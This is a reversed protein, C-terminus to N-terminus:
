KRLRRLTKEDFKFRLRIFPGKGEYDDGALDADFSDFSYGLSLWMQDVVRYGIEVSGGHLRTNIKHSTLMRYEAGLDFRDTLDYLIRAAVLDTYSDFSDEKVLKGAYKGMLQVRPNFQYNGEVSLIFSDANYSPQSRARKENKYEIKGLANFRDNDMPRFAMGAMLRSTHDEGAVGNKELFYRERLLLSYDPHLKHSMAVEALYTDNGNESIEHRHEARGTVKLDDQPIYEMGAAVAYADPENANKKGSVTSLYEAAFNATMGDTIQIRNKLGTAQQTMDRDFGNSLRYEHYGTTNRAIPSEVGLLTRAQTGEQYRAYEERIYLRRDKSFQYNLGGQSISLEGGGLEQKHSLSLSLNPLLAREVGLKLFTAKDPNEYANLFPVGSLLGGPTLPVKAPAATLNDSTERSLEANVSTKTFKKSAGISAVRSSSDNINDKEDLYKAKFNLDPRFEYVADMGWKRTGRIAGMASLNSYYDSLEQYYATLTLDELPKSKLDFSWGDGTEPVFASGNDFLGRTAAYEARVITELPLRLTIDGGFLRYDSIGNEEVIGTTGVELRDNVKFTARGGYIYFRNGDQFSEYTTVIYIPNGDSDHSSVPATFLITGMDYDIDYDSGRSRIERALVRDPHTRDRTEIVVRESGEIIRNNNLYYFGSIGRAPITDVFQSQDTYSGFTRLRLRDKNVEFRLGNFSRNYAGLKTDTLDTRYDGYLLSSKGKELKVYLKERSMAEYGTKSEDGYAPYKEESDLRTDSERFLEDTREKNSDYAATLSIDKFIKGKLFVAGRGDLYTEDDYFARDKLFSINGSSTGHGLVIEGLGVVLMERLSPVFYISASEMLSDAEAHIKVEGTEMPAIITLRAVGKECLVQHGDMSPDADKEMIDGATIAVTITNVYPIVRGKKDALFIEVNIRSEGDAAAEKRDPIIAIREPSGPTEVTIQKHGRAIGFSDKIEARILNEEGARLRIGIFEYIVVRGQEHRVQRGIQSDDIRDGNVTLTLVTDTSTKVLVRTSDREIVAHDLPKLIALEPTMAIIQEELPAGPAGDTIQREDPSSELTAEPEDHCEPHRKESEKMEVSFNAKFLGGPTMDIFQSHGRGMFRNSGPKPMLGKPLSTEDLRLVHTGPIVGAISFRGSKDTIVRTGDELYLVVNPLGTDKKAQGGGSDIFVRGIITGKDTFVG